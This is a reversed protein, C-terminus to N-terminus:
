LSSIFAISWSLINKINGYYIQIPLRSKDETFAGASRRGQPFTALTKPNHMLGVGLCKLLAEKRAWMNFFENCKNTNPQQEVFDAEASSFMEGSITDLNEIKIHLQIDVGLRYKKSVCILLLDDSHSMNFKIGGHELGPKGYNNRTYVIEEPHNNLSKGLVKRLLGHALIYRKRFIGKRLEVQQKELDDLMLGFSSLSQDDLFKKLDFFYCSIPAERDPYFVFSKM